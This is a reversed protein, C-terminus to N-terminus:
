GLYEISGDAKRLIRAFFDDWIFLSVEPSYTHPWNIVGTFRVLPVHQADRVITHQYIGTTFSKKSDYDLGNAKCCNRITMANPKGEELHMGSGDFEGMTYWIPRLLGDEPIPTVTGGRGDVSGVPAFAAFLDAAERMLMQTMAGGNSHGTVYIRERDIPYDECIMEVMKRIFAVDDPGGPDKPYSSNWAPTPCIPGGFRSGAPMNRRPFPYATPYCLIFGREEAVRHWGSNEAFFEGSCSFGHIAVVLPLKRDPNRKYAKPEYIWWRRKLGDVMAWNPLFGQDEPLETKRIYANGEGGWRKYSEVFATMNEIVDALPLDAIQEKTSHWVESCAPDNLYLTGPLPDERWIQAYANYLTEDKVHNASKAAQLVNSAEGILYAPLRVQGKPICPDCDSPMATLHTLLDADLQTDGMAAWAALVSCHTFAFVSAINAGDEFGMCYVGPANSPYYEMSRMETIMRTMVGLELGPNDKNWGKPAEVFFTAIAHRELAQKWEGKDFFDQAKEGGPILVFMSNGSTKFTTPIYLLFPRECDEEDRVSGPFLGTHVPYYPNDPDVPRQGVDVRPRSFSAASGPVVRVRNLGSELQPHNLNM